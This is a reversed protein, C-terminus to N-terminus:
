EDGHHHPDVVVTEHRDVPDKTITTREITERETMPLSRNNPGAVRRTLPVVIVRSVQRAAGQLLPKGNCDHPLRSRDFPQSASAADPAPSRVDNACRCPSWGAM